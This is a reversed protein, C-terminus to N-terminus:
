AVKLRRRSSKLVFRIHVGLRALMDILSDTSFLDLRGRLLDSVRPRTVRLIQATKAQTLGRSAIVKQLQILLDARALLHEAEEASFGLDRFVNGSSPTVKLKNKGPM